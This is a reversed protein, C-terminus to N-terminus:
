QTSQEYRDWKGRKDRKISKKKRKESQRKDAGMGTM